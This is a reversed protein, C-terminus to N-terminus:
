EDLNTLRVTIVEDALHVRTGLHERCAAVIQQWIHAPMDSDSGEGQLDPAVLVVVDSYDAPQGGQHWTFKRKGNNLWSIFAADQFIHPANLRLSLGPFAQM